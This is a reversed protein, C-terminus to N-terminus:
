RKELKKLLKTLRDIQDLVEDIEKEALFESQDRLFQRLAAIRMRLNFAIEEM